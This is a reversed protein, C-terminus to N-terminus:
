PMTVTLPATFRGGSELVPRIDDWIGLQRANDLYLEVAERLMALADDPSDGCSAVDLEPCLATFGDGERQIIATLRRTM